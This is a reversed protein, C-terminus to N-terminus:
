RGSLGRFLQYKARYTDDVLYQPVVAELCIPQFGFIAPFAAKSTSDVEMSRVNDRTMLKVPLLEMFFAQLYSLGDGLGIIQRKVGLTDAVYQVLEKLSYVKPGALDYSKGYTEINNLSAVFTRAVDEVFIPQFKAKPKALLIVPMLKVITAFLNIFGDGRGFIISPKLITVNLQKACDKLIEEGAAKSRLYASPAHLSAHLASMQLLRKVSHTECIKAVRKPLNAHIADFSLKSSEHLIGILNIVANCGKIQASLASDDMVDCEVVEVNPLLILHKSSERRRTLVKVGFGAVSLQHVLASGVFGSGGLVCVHNIQM